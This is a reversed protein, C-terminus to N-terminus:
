QSDKKVHKNMKNSNLGRVHLPRPPNVGGGGGGVTKRVKKRSSLVDAGSTELLQESM